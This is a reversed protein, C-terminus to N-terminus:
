TPPGGVSGDRVSPSGPCSAWRTPMRSRHSGPRGPFLARSGPPCASRRRAEEHSSRDAGVKLHPSAAVTVEPSRVPRSREGHSRVGGAVAAAALTPVGADTPSTALAPCAPTRRRPPPGPLDLGIAAGYTTSAARLRPDGSLAHEAPEHQADHDSREARRGPAGRVRARDARMRRVVPRRRSAARPRFVAANRSRHVGRLSSLDDGHTSSVRAYWGRRTPRRMRCPWRHPM